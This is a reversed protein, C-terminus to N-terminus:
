CAAALLSRDPGTLMVPSGNGLSDQFNRRMAESIGAGCWMLHHEYKRLAVAPVGTVNESLEVRCGQGGLRIAEMWIETADAVSMAELFVTVSRRRDSARMTAQANLVVANHFREQRLGSGARNDARLWLNLPKLFANVFDDGAYDRGMRRMHARLAADSSDGLQEHMEEQRCEWSARPHMGSGALFERIERLTSGSSTLDLVYRLRTLQSDSYMGNCDPSQILGARRWNRLTEPMIGTLDSINNTSFQLM